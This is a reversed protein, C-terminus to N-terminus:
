CHSPGSSDSYAPEQRPGRSTPLHRCADKTQCYATQCVIVRDGNVNRRRVPFSAEDIGRSTKLHAVVGLGGPRPWTTASSPVTTGSSTEINAPQTAAQQSPDSM